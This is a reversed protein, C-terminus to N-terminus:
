YYFPVGDAGRFVENRLRREYAAPALMSQILDRYAGTLHPKIRVAQRIFRRGKKHRGDACCLMGLKWLFNAMVDPHAELDPRYKELIRERAEVKRKLDATIQDGHIHHRVLIDPVFDFSFRRALRIWMDRDQTGPLTEDFIGVDDFCETRILPVSTGFRTSRLFDVYGERLPAPRSVSIVTESRDSVKLSGAYV